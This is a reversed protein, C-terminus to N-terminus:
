KTLGESDHSIQNDIARTIFGNISEGMSDAHAKIEAKKGKPVRIKIEDLNEKMYKATARKQAESYAM